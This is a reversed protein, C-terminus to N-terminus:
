FLGAPCEIQQYSGAEGFAPQVYEACYVPHGGAGACPFTFRAYYKASTVGWHGKGGSCYLDTEGVQNQFAADSFWSTDIESGTLGQDTESTAEPANDLACATFLVFTFSALIRIM